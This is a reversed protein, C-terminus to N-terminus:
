KGSQTFLAPSSPYALKTEPRLRYKKLQWFTFMIGFEAAALAWVMMISKIMEITLLFIGGRVEQRREPTKNYFFLLYDLLLVLVAREFKVKANVM